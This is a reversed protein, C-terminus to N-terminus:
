YGIIGNSCELARTPQFFSSACSLSFSLILASSDNGGLPSFMLCLDSCRALCLSPLVRVNICLKIM